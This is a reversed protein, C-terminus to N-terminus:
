DEEEEEEAAEADYYFLGDDPDIYVRGTELVTIRANARTYDRSAEEASREAAAASGAAAEKSRAADEKSNTASTAAEVAAVKLAQVEAVTERFVAIETESVGEGTTAGKEAVIGFNETSVTGENQDFFTIETISKGALVSMQDKVGVIVANNEIDIRCNYYFETKDPKTGSIIASLGELSIEDNGNFIKFGMETLDADNQNIRVVQPKGWFGPIINLPIYRGGLLM